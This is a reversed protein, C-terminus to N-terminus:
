FGNKATQSGLEAKAAQPKQMFATNACGLVLFLLLLKAPKLISM